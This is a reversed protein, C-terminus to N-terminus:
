VRNGDHATSADDASSGDTSTSFEGISCTASVTGVVSSGERWVKVNRVNVKPAKDHMRRENRLWNKQYRRSGREIEEM